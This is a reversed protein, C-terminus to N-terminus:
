TRCYGKKIIKITCSLYNLRYEKDKYKSVDFNAETGFSAPHIIASYLITHITSLDQDEVNFFRKILEDAKRNLSFAQGNLFNKLNGNRESKAINRLLFHLSPYQLTYEMVENAWLLLKQEDDIDLDLVSFAFLYNIIFFEEVHNILSEKNGFYYNVANINVGAERTIDRIPVNFSGKEGILYLARDLIKEQISNFEKM